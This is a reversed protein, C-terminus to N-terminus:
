IKQRAKFNARSVFLFISIALVKILEVLIASVAAGVMGFLNIVLPSICLSILFVAFLIKGYAKSYDFVLCNPILFINLFATIIPLFILVNLIDSSVMYESGFVVVIIENAFMLFIFSLISLITVYLISVKLSFLTPSKAGAERMKIMHPYIVNLVTISLTSIPQIIKDIASYLGLTTNNTLLGLFLLISNSAFGSSVMGIFVHWGKSFQQQIDKLSVKVLCVGLRLSYLFSVVGSCISGLSLILPVYFYDSEQKVVFFLLILFILKPLINFFAVNHMKEIGQFYWVPFMVNGLVVGYSSMYIWYDGNFKDFYSIVLHLIIYGVVAIICKSVIVSTFIINIHENDDVNKAIDKTASLSFGYDVFLVFYACITQAFIILGFKEPGLTIILYPMSILPFLYSIIRVGSLSLFNGILKKFSSSM